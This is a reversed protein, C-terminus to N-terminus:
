PQAKDEGAQLLVRVTDTSRKVQFQFTVTRKDESLVIKEEFSDLDLWRKGSSGPSFIKTAPAVAKAFTEDSASETIIGIIERDFTVSGAILTTINAPNGSKFIVYSSVPTGAPLTAFEDESLNNYEGPNTISVKTDAQLIGDFDKFVVAEDDAPLENLAKNVYRDSTSLLVNGAHKVVGRIVTPSPTGAQDIQRLTTFPRTQQRVPVIESSAADVRVAQGATLMRETGAPQNPLAVKVEGEFIHVATQDAQTLDVGFRTGLDTVDMHPTRVIFGKAAENEVIGLLKGEALMIANEDIVEFSCPAELIAVAGQKTTITAHGTSLSLRQGPRLADGNRPATYGAPVQWRADFQSTLTAVRPEDSEPTSDTADAMPVYATSGPTYVSTLIIVLALLAAISSVSIVAAKSQTFLHWSLGVAQTFNLPEPPEAPQQQTPQPLGQRIVELLEVPPLDDPPMFAAMFKEFDVHKDGPLALEKRVGDERLVHERVLSTTQIFGVFFKAAADDSLLQERLEALEEASLESNLYRLALLRLSMQQREDIHDNM